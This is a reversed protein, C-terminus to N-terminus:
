HLLNRRPQTTPRAPVEQGANLGLRKQGTKQINCLLGTIRKSYDEHVFARFDGSMVMLEDFVDRPIMVAKVDTEAIGETKRRATGVLCASTVLCRDSAHIRSLIQNGGDLLPQQVRITGSVLLALTEAPHDPDFIQAGQEIEVLQAERDLLRTAPQSLEALEPFASRWSGRNWMQGVRNEDTNYQTHNYVIQEIRM